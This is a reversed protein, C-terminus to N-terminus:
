SVLILGRSRGRSIFFFTIMAKTVTTKNDIIYEYFQVRLIVKSIPATELKDNFVFDRIIVNM